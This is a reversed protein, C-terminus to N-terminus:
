YRYAYSGLTSLCVVGSKLVVTAFRDCYRRCTRVVSSAHFHSNVQVPCFVPLRAPPSSPLHAETMLADPTAFDNFASSGPSPPTQAVSVSLWMDQCCDERVAERTSADCVACMTSVMAGGLICVPRTAWNLRSDSAAGALGRHLSEWGM